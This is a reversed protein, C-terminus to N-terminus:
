QASLLGCFHRSSVQFIKYVQRAFPSPWAPLHPLLSDEGTRFGRHVCSVVSCTTSMFTPAFSPPIAAQCRPSRIVLSGPKRHSAALTGAKNPQTQPKLFLICVQSAWSSPWSELKEKALISSCVHALFATHGWLAPPKGASAAAKQWKRWEGLSPLRSGRTWAKQLGWVLATGLRRQEGEKSAFLM